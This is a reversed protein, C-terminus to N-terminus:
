AGPQLNKSEVVTVNKMIAYLMPVYTQQSNGKGL